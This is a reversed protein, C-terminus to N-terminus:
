ESLFAEFRSKLQNLEEPTGHLVYIVSSINPRGILSYRGAYIDAQIIALLASAVAIRADSTWETPFPAPELYAPKGVCGCFVNLGLSHEATCSSHPHPRHFCEPCIAGVELPPSSM